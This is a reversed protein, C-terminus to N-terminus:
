CFLFLQKPLTDQKKSRRSSALKAQVPVKQRTSPSFNGNNRPHLTPDLVGTGSSTLHTEMPSPTSTSRPYIRTMTRWMTQSMKERTLRVTQRLSPHTTLCTRLCGALLAVHHVVPHSEKLKECCECTTRHDALLFM